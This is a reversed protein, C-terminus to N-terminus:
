PGHFEYTLEYEGSGFEAFALVALSDMEPDPDDIVIRAEGDPTDAAYDHSFLTPCGSTDTNAYLDFDVDPEAADLRIEVYCPSESFTLWLCDSDGPGVLSNTLSRTRRFEGCNASGVGPLAM